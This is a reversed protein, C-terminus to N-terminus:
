MRNRPSSNLKCANASASMSIRPLHMLAILASSVPARALNSAARPRVFTAASLCKESAAVGCDHYLAQLQVLANPLPKQTRPQSSFGFHSATTQRIPTLERTITTRVSRLPSLRFTRRGRRRGLEPKPPAFSDATARIVLPRVLRFRYRKAKQRMCFDRSRAKGAPVIRLSVRERRVNRM